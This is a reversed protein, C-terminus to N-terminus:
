ESKFIRCRGSEDVHLRRQTFPSKLEVDFGLSHVEMSLDIPNGKVKFEKMGLDSINEAFRQNKDYFKRQLRYLQNLEWRIFEDDPISFSVQKGVSESTFFVFAWKEPEHMNIVGTPSWVWNYEHLFKGNKDKKRQYVNDTLDFDWNVRSFNVRWYDDVPTPVGFYSTRFVAWPIAIEVSWGQDKDSPDNLTGDVAVATKMGNMDFDNLTINGHRYPQDLFLDWVTNLANMEMEYYNHTDGDPDVFVEFDNNYFIITDRQKLNAWVHPEEMEAYVYFYTDDWLMKARTQYTPKVEGEIDIFDNTWPANIWDSETATGDIVITEDTKHAVYTEPAFVYEKQAMLDCSLSIVALVITLYKM